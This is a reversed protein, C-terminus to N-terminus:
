RDARADRRGRSAPGLCNQRTVIPGNVRGVIVRIEVAHGVGVGAGRGEAFGAEAGFRGVSDLPRGGADPEGGAGQGCLGELVGIFDVGAGAGQAIVGELEAAAAGLRHAAGLNSSAPGIM